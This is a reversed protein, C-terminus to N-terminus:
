KQHFGGISSWWSRIRLFGRLRPAYYTRTFANRRPRARLHFALHAANGAVCKTRREASHARRRCTEARRGASPPTRAKMGGCPQQHDGGVQRGAPLDAEDVLVDAGAVAPSKAQASATKTLPM